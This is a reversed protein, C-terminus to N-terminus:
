LNYLNRIFKHGCLSLSHETNHVCVTICEAIHNFCKSIDIDCNGAYSNNSGTAPELSYIVESQAVAMGIGMFLAVFSLLLKKM